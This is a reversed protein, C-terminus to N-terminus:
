IINDFNLSVHAIVNYSQWAVYSMNVMDLAGKTVMTDVFLHKAWVHIHRRYVAM